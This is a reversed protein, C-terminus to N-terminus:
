GAGEVVLLRVSKGDWEPGVPLGLARFVAGADAVVSREVRERMADSEAYRRGLEWWRALWHGAPPRRVNEAGFAMAGQIAASFKEQWDVDDLATLDNRARPAEPPAAAVMNRWVDRLADVDPTSATGHECDVLCNQEARRLMDYTPEKPVRVFADDGALQALRPHQRMAKVVDPTARMVNGDGDKVEVACTWCEEGVAARTGHPCSIRDGSM